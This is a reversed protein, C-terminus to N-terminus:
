FAYGITLGTRLGFYMLNEVNVTANNGSISSKVTGGPVEIGDLEAKLEDKQAQSLSGILADNLSVAASGSGYHGGLIWWDISFVDKIIWQAGFMMGGGIGSYSAEINYTHPAQGTLTVDFPIDINTKSYRLYPAIYFGRPAGQKTGPYWRFEPTISWDSITTNALMPDSAISSPLSRSPMITFGLAGSIKEGFAHEYQLSINTFALAMLNLKVVNKPGDQAKVASSCFIVSILLISLLKSKM